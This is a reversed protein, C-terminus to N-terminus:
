INNSKERNCKECLLEINRATNSGGKSLPIIHDFELKERSGCKACKGGDRRWVKRQVEVPIRRSDEEKAKEVESFQRKLREFRKHQKDIRELILLFGKKEDYNKDNKVLYLKDRFLWVEYFEKYPFFRSPTKYKNIGEVIQEVPTVGHYFLRPFPTQSPVSGRPDFFQEERKMVFPVDSEKFYEEVARRYSTDQSLNLLANKERKSMIGEFILVKRRGDYRTKYSAPINSRKPKNELKYVFHEKRKRYSSISCLVYFLGEVVIRILSTESEYPNEIERIDKYEVWEGWLIGPRRVEKVEYYKAAHEVIRM